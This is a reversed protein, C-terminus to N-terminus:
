AQVASKQIIIIGVASGTDALGGLQHVSGTLHSVTQFVPEIGVQDNQPAVIRRLGFKVAASHVVQFLGFFLADGDNHHIWSFIVRNKLQPRLPDGYARGRVAGHHVGHGIHDHVFPQPIFFKRVPATQSKVTVVHRLSDVTRLAIKRINQPLFVVRRLSGLPRLCDGSDPRLHDAAQGDPVAPCLWPRQDLAVARLAVGAPFLDGSAPDHQRTECTIHSDAAAPGASRRVAAAM